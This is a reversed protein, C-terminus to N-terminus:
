SWSLIVPVRLILALDRYIGVDAGVLLTSMSSSYSAINESAPVFGGTALGPQSLNSERRIKANKWSQTFGLVLNLDFPDDKDFADAVTTIEATESMLSPERAAVPEDAHASRAVGSLALAAVFCLGLGRRVRM